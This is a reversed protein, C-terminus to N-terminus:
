KGEALELKRTMLQHGNELKSVAKFQLVNEYYGVSEEKSEVMLYCCGIHKGTYLVITLINKMMWKGVGKRRYEDDVAFKGILIAPFYDYNPFERKDRKSIHAISISATSLSFYGAIRDGDMAIWTVSLRKRQNDLAHESLFRTLPEKGDKQTCHFSTLDISGDIFRLELNM